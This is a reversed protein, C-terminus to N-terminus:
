VREWIKITNKPSWVDQDTFGVYPAGPIDLPICCEMAVVSRKPAIIHKLCSGLSAHSHVCVIIVRDYLPFHMISDEIKRAYCQLRCVDWLEKRLLPDVSYCMWASRFAFMAATRPTHGDGVCVMAIAPDDFRLGLKPALLWRVAHYAGMSETVEKANPFLGLNLMDGACKLKFFEEIHKTGM